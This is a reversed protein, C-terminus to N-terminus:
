QSLFYDESDLISTEENKDTFLTSDSGPETGEVFAEIFRASDDGALTGNEPDIAVNVIGSPIAFDSDGFKAIGARMFDRWIPLSSKSGTEGWGLTQNDDFGTWVGTVLKSSFGIFWADVYNNTTGTKGGIHSSISSAARGTGRQVVGKLLNSMIYALRPDYVQNEDLNALYPNEKEEEVKAEKNEESNPAITKQAVEEAPTAKFTEDSGSGSAAELEEREDMVQPSGFRDKVSLISKVKILKGGNPFISYLKVLDILNMGFSGLSVSLDRPLDANVKNREVFNIIKEVGVDQSLKITPINRSTELARRFTMSGKFKGDYNGPKWSLTDDVGSLAQPSDLLISAPNYYNELGTAYIIPKFASGPQRNSQVVRNFQSVEFDSGGVMSVIEGSIPSVSLLAGQVEPDQELHAVYFKQDKLAEVLNKSSKIRTKFGDYLQSWATVVENDIKVKIVDGEKLISEPSDVYSWYNREETIKRDHAWKFNEHPIIVKMGGYNAYIVRGSDSVKTVIAKYNKTFDVFTPFVDQELNGIELFVKQNSQVQEFLSKQREWIKELEEEQLRYERQAEGKATFILFNSAEHYLDERQKKLYDKREQEDSITNLPGKYGQRKDIEKVGELVAEEAKQQLEWDLTTVVEYGNTKIEDEGFRDFLRERIWATFYGAKMPTSKRIQIKIDEAIAEDYEAQSIKGTALLRGLVYTQRDKAKEPNNYPSYRSPAVLLGAVLAVEATTAESLEKDFYGRFASRVGYYSGGLYVQNLYLYLIEDKTFKEEIKRALILDKIKRKFSREPTLLLSKAVQQTITSAGQKIRGAKINIIMARLIGMYDIGSHNYFNDDEAALFANVVKKPIEEMTAIERNEKRLEVLLHGDKSYIKSPIAPTYSTLSNLEPLDYSISVIVGFLLVGCVFGVSILAFL